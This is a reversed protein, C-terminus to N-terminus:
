YIKIANCRITKALQGIFQCDLGDIYTEPKLKWGLDILHADIEQNWDIYRPDQSASNVYAHVKRSIAAATKVPLM